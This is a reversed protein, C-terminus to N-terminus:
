EWSRATPMSAPTHHPAGLLGAALAMAMADSILLDTVRQRDKVGYAFRLPSRSPQAAWELDVPYVRSAGGYVQTMPPMAHSFAWSVDGTPIVHVEALAGLTSLVDEEDVYPDSQGAATSIVVVPKTRAGSNLRAALARAEAESKVHVVGLQGM